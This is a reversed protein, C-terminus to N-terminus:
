ERIGMVVTLGKAATGDHISDIDITIIDGVALATTTLDPKTTATTTTKDTTDFDLKNTTMITTGGISIDVVLGTGTNIGATSNTAYLYFPTSDSQLITGAIPSVFDGYINTATACDTAAEVLNFVLWRVNRKSAVFQDIRVVRTNDTGTDIEATTLHESKGAVTLSAATVLDTVDSDVSVIGTDARLLGTLGVPMTVTGTFTPSALPAKTGLQTQFSSTGGKVFALETLSPYTAVDASVLNKSGDTIVIESATLDSLLIGNTFTQTQSIAGVKTGDQRLFINSLINSTTEFEFHSATTGEQILRVIAGSGGTLNAYFKVLLRDTNLITVPASLVMHINFESEADVAGSVESTGLLTEAGGTGVSARKYLEWYIGDVTSSGSVKQAHIHVDYVGSELQQVGPEGDITLFNVLPKDSGSTGINTDLNSSGGGLDDDTMVYYIGAEADSTDGFFYDFSFGIALDVYLKTAVDQDLTPDAVGTIKNAGLDLVGGALSLLNASHTFTVDSNFNIVSGDGLFLDAWYKSTSGLAQSNSAGPLAAGSCILSGGITVGNSTDILLANASHVIRCNGANFNIIGDSAIFLDSWMKTSSGLAGGDSTGLLLSTNIAVSALNDLSKVAKADIQTQLASSLGKVRSLETLSPYTAVALAGLTSGDVWYTLEDTTGSGGVTGIATITTGTITLGSGATLLGWNLESEDWFLIRDAGPNELANISQVTAEESLTLEELGGLGPTQPLRFDARALIPATSFLKSPHDIKYSKGYNETKKHCEICLTRGNDIDWLEPCDLADLFSQINYEYTIQAFSKPYHDANLKGGVYCLQCLFGDREFIAEKWQRMESCQRIQQLLPTIGGKWNPSKEGRNADGIKKRIEPKRANEGGMRLPSALRMCRKSCFMASWKKHYEKGCYDCLKWYVKQKGEYYWGREKKQEDTMKRSRKWDRGLELFHEYPHEAGKIFRGKNDRYDGM